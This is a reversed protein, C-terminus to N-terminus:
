NVTLFSQFAEKIDKPISDAKLSEEIAFRSSEVNFHPAFKKDETKLLGAQVLFFNKVRNTQSKEIAYKFSDSFFAKALSLAETSQKSLSAFKM